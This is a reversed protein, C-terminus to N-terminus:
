SQLASVAVYGARALTFAYAEMLQRSGAFRHTIVVAPADPAGDRGGLAM